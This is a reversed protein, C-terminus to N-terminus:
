DADRDVWFWKQDFEDLLHAFVQTYQNKMSLRALAARANQIHATATAKVETSIRESIEASLETGATQYRYVLRTVPNIKGSHIDWQPNRGLEKELGHWNNLDNMIQFAFGVEKGLVGLQAAQVEDGTALYAGTKTVFELFSATKGYIMEQMEADSVELKQEWVLDQMEGMALLRYLTSWERLLYTDTTSHAIQEFALAVLLDGAIVANRAGYTHYFSAKGRRFEDSDLYDDHILSAKHLLEIGAALQYANPALEKKYVKHALLFLLPRFRRGSEIANHLMANIERDTAKADVLQQLQLDINKRYKELKSDYIKKIFM